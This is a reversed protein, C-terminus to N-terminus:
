NLKFIENKSGRLHYLIDDDVGGDTRRTAPNWGTFDPKSLKALTLDCEEALHGVEDSLSAFTAAASEHKVGAAVMARDGADDGPGFWLAVANLARVTEASLRARADADGALTRFWGRGHHAHYREEDLIKDVCLQLPGFAGDRMSHLVHTVAVDVVANMAVFAPWDSLARDLFSVNAFAGGPRDDVMAEPDDNWQSKLLSHLLRVHGLEGQSLSCSAVAAELAPTGFTWAGYHYGLLLKTDACATIVHHAAEGCAPPMDTISDFITAPTTM